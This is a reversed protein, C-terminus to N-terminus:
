QQGGARGQWRGAYCGRCLRVPAAAARGRLYPPARGRNGRHLPHLVSGIPHHRSCWRWGGPNYSDPQRGDVGFPRGGHRGAGTWPWGGRRQCGWGDNSAAPWGQQDFTKPPTLLMTESARDARLSVGRISEIMEVSMDISHLSGEATRLGRSQILRPGHMGHFFGRKSSGAILFGFGPHPSRPGPVRASRCSRSRGARAVAGKSTVKSLNSPMCVCSRRPHDSEPALRDSEPALLRSSVCRYAWGGEDDSAQGLAGSAFPCTAQCARAVWLQQGVDRGAACWVVDLIALIISIGSHGMQRTRPNSAQQNIQNPIPHLGPISRCAYLGAPRSEYVM